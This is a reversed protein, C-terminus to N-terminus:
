GRSLISSMASQATSIASQVHGTFVADDLMTVWPGTADNILANEQVSYVAKGSYLANALLKYIPGRPAYQRYAVDHRIPIVGLDGFYREQVAASTVWQIFQWAAQQHRSSKAIAIADGGAFSASGGNEGPLPTAALPVHPADQRLTQVGFGGTAFMAVKGSEFPTFQTAGSDGQSAAPVLHHVWMSRYFRLAAAVQPQNLTPRQQTPSGSLINGGSAWIFPLFTFVACGGCDGSFYFGERGHGTATVKAADQEIQAWTRPPDAPNLGADRFLATNYFLVSADGSFPLGYLQGRYSANDIHSRDFQNFYPLRHARDTLDALVGTEAFLPMYAVDISALDPGSGGAVAIGFKQVFNNVPIITLKIQIHPHSHNFANVVGSIFASEDSRAWLTLTTVGATQGSSGCGALALGGVLAVIVLWRRM